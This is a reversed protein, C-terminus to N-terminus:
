FLIKPSGILLCSKLSLSFSPFSFIFGPAINRSSSLQIRSLFFSNSAIIIAPSEKKRERIWSEEELFMAGPKINEKGDNENDNFDQKNIPLGLIKNQINKWRTSLKEFQVTHSKMQLTSRNSEEEKKLENFISDKKAIMDNADGIRNDIKRFDKSPDHSEIDLKVRQITNEIVL